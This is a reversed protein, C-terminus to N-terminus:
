MPFDVNKVPHVVIWIVAVLERHLGLKWERATVVLIGQAATMIAGAYTQDNRIHTPVINTCLM